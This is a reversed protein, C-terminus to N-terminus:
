ATKRQLCSLDKFIKSIFTRNPNYGCAKFIRRVIYTNTMLAKFSSMSYQMGMEKMTVKAVNLSAFSANFAFDLKWKNRAQCHMLGTYGKADRYCFEIQFRTRYYALVEDGSLSIDNSFFLKKKGNPMQWIVLRIKCKLAKSYAILTYATGEAKKMEMKEMRTLDLKNMDIKGDKTKPRGRKGTRPGNYVYYLCANDRFRSVLSFGYKKIGNVFTSTSFYADAVILTSLKLLEKRYRKIVSIYFDTMSKDRLGLEKGTLSQHARLMICDNADIDILGIGMIELGHKVAQACGSWFRGIHPTKKGSKSIFSPDIAIAHRGKEGFYRKALSVNLKLWDICESKKKGFNNRYTQEDHSGYREMQTFNVKRPIIMYLIIVEILIKEFSKTLKAASNKVAYTIIDTYQDLGTKM